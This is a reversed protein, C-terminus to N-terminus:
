HVSLLHKGRLSLHAGDLLQDEGFIVVIMNLCLRILVVQLCALDVVLLDHLLSHLRQTPQLDLFHDIALM